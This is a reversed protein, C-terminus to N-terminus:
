NVWWFSKDDLGISAMYACYKSRYDTIADNGSPDIVFMSYSEPWDNTGKDISTWKGNSSSDVSGSQIFEFWLSQLFRSGALDSEQPEYISPSPSSSSSSSSSSSKLHSQLSNNDRSVRSNSMKRSQRKSQNNQLAKQRSFISEDTYTYINWDEKIM